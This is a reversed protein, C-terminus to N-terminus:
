PNTQTVTFTNTLVSITGVRNQHGNLPNATASYTVTGNGTGSAGSTITLWSDNRVATWTCGTGATVGFSGASGAAGPITQSSPSIQVVCGSAQNVTVTQGAVSLSGTRAPGTTSAITFAVTGNGSGPTGSNITLWADTTSSTWTCGSTTTVAISTGAGGAAAISQSTPNIQFACGSAQSVSFTQGAISM